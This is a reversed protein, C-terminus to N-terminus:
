VIETQGHKRLGMIKTWAADLSVAGPGLLFITLAMVFYGLPSEYNAGKAGAPAVFFANGSSMQSMIAVFMTSMVGLCALPTFFGLIIAIGGLFESVAALAQLFGPPGDAGMWTFPAAIKGQGHSALALGVFIRLFLIGIAGPGGAFYRSGFFFNKM